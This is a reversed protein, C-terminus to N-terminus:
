ARAHDADILAVTKISLLSRGKLCPSPAYGLKFSSWLGEGQYVGQANRTPVRPYYSM